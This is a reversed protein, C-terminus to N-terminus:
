VRGIRELGKQAARNEANIECFASRGSSLIYEAAFSCVASSYGRKLYQPHTGGACIEWIDDSIYEVGAFSLIM